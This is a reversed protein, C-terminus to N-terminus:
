QRKSVTNVHRSLPVSRSRQTRPRMEQDLMAMGGGTGLHGRGARIALRRPSILGFGARVVFRFSFHVLFQTEGVLLFADRWRSCVFWVRYPTEDNISKDITRNGARM